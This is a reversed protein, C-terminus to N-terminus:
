HPSLMWSAVLILHHINLRELFLSNSKIGFMYITQMTGSKFTKLTKELMEYRDKTCTSRDRRSVNILNQISSFENLCAWVHDALLFDRM